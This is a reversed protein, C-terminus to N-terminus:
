GSGGLLFHKVIRLFEQLKELYVFHSGGTLVVLGADPIAQEMKRGMWLPTETDESGWILLTSAKVRTLCDTVDFNVVKVFTKRMEADLANYDRSGYKRRLSERIKEPIKGFIKVRDMWESIKRLRKYVETRRKQAATPQARLGSAGVLVMKGVLEPYDAALIIATRGGHSHAIIDCGEICLARILEAVMKAFDEAGWPIPPKGSQGHGPFDLVTVRANHMLQETVPKWLETSCGWGHLLLINRAGEGHQEYYVDAGNATIFM